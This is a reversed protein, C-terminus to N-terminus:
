EFKVIKPLIKALYHGFITWIQHLIVKKAVAEDIKTMKLPFETLVQIEM